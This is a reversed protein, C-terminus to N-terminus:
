IVFEDEVHEELDVNLLPNLLTEVATQLRNKRAIAVQNMIATKIQETSMGLLTLMPVTKSLTYEAGQLDYTVEALVNDLQYSIGTIKIM